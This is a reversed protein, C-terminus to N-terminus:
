VKYYIFIINLKNWINYIIYINIYQKRIQFLIINYKKFINYIFLKDM